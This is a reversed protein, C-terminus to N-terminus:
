HTSTACSAREGALWSSTQRLGYVPAFQDGQAILSGDAAFAKVYVSLDEVPADAGTHWVIELALRDPM